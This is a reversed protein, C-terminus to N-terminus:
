SRDFRRRPYRSRTAYQNDARWSPWPGSQTAPVPKATADRIFPAYTPNTRFLLGGAVEELHIGRRTYEQRLEDALMRVLRKDAGGAEKALDSVSLPHESVFVLAEILGKLHARAVDAAPITAAPPESALAEEATETNTRSEIETRM